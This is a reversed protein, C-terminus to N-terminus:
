CLALLGFATKLQMGSPWMGSPDFREGEEGLDAVEMGSSQEFCENRFYFFYVSVDFCLSCIQFYFYINQFIILLFSFFSTWM